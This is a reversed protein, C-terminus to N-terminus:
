SMLWRDVIIMCWSIISFVLIAFWFGAEYFKRKELGEMFSGFYIVTLGIHVLTVFMEFM